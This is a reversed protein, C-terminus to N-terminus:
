GFEGFEEFPLLAFFGVQRLPFAGNEKGFEDPILVERTAGSRVELLVAVFAFLVRGFAEDVEEAFPREVLDIQFHPFGILSATEVASEGERSPLAGVRGDVFLEVAQTTRQVVRDLEAQDFTIRKEAYLSELVLRPLLDPEALVLDLSQEYAGNRVAHELVEELEPDERAGSRCLREKEALIVDIPLAALNPQLSEFLTPIFNVFAIELDFAKARAEFNQNVAELRMGDRATIEAFGVALGESHSPNVSDEGPDAGRSVERVDLRVIQAPGEGHVARHDYVVETLELGFHAVGAGHRDLAIQILRGSELRILRNEEFRRGRGPETSFALAIKRTKSKRMMAWSDVGTGPNSSM